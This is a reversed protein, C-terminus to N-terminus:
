KIMRPCLRLVAATRDDEGGAQGHIIGYAVEKPFVGTYERLFREACETEAGDSLLVLLEGRALSVSIREPMHDEGFGVGPPPAAAGLKELHTRRKLYSPAAGWKYLLVEGNTLDAQVLDVTAFAGDDRLLYIGNLLEMAKGPPAGTQLLFRLLEIAEAAEAQAERGTGMGDCVILYFHKGVRFTVGRDGSVERDPASRSRFGVEPRYRCKIQRGAPPKALADSLVGYQQELIQRTERLRARCQRRCSLDDLERDVAALFGDVHLCRDRFSEPLDRRLARGRTMMAPAAHELEEVTQAVEEQWCRNWGGCVRCVRDATRDFVAAMEPDPRDQEAAAISRSVCHLLGAAAHLRPDPGAPDPLPSADVLGVPLFLAAVGGLMASALFLSDTELMVVGFLVFAFWIGLRVLRGGRRGALAALVLVGTACGPAWVLDVGLGFIAAALPAMPSTLTSAALACAAVAGLPLDLPRLACAGACLCSFCVTRCLPHREQLALRFCLAGAGAAFVRLMYRWVMDAAFRQELLFLFGVLATFAVSCGMGFWKDCAPVDEGFICLAAQVLLGAAILELAHFPYFILYGLSGGVFAGFSAACLGLASSLCLPLPLLTGSVRVGALLFGATGAALFRLLQEMAPKGTFRRLMGRVTQQQLNAKM